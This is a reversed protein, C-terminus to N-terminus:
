YNYSRRKKRKKCPNTTTSGSSSGSGSGSGSGSTSTSTSSSGSGSTEELCKGAYAAFANTVVTQFTDVTLIQKLLSNVLNSSKLASIVETLSLANSELVSKTLDIAFPIYSKDTIISEVVQTALGSDYLSELLQVVVDNADRTALDLGREQVNVTEIPDMFDRKKSVADKIKERVKDVLDSIVGKATNFLSVYLSCDSILDKIVNGVLNSEELAKFLTELNIKGSKLVKTIVSVTIPEFTKNTALYNIVLPATNSDKLLALVKTVIAYDREAVEVDMADRKAKYEQLTNIAEQIDNNEARKILTSDSGASTPAANSAALCVAVAVLSTSSLRM